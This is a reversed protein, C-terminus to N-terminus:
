TSIISDLFSPNVVRGEIKPCRLGDVVKIKLM